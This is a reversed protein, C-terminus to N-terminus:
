AKRLGDCDCCEGPEREGQIALERRGCPIDNGVSGGVRSGFTRFDMRALGSDQCELTLAPKLTQQDLARQYCNIFHLEIHPTQDM